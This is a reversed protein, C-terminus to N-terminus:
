KKKHLEDLNDMLKIISNINIVTFISLFILLGLWILFLKIGSVGAYFLLISLIFGVTWITLLFIWITTNLGKAIATKKYFASIQYYIFLFLPFGFASFFVMVHREENIYRLFKIINSSLEMM